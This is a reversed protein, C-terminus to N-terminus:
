SWVKPLWQEQRARGPVPWWDHHTGFQWVSYNPSCSGSNAIADCIITAGAGSYETRTYGGYITSSFNRNWFYQVGAIQRPKKYCRANIL